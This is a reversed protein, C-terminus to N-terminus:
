DRKRNVPHEVFFPIIDKEEDLGTGNSHWRDPRSDEEQIDGKYIIPRTYVQFGQLHSYYIRFKLHGVYGEAFANGLCYQYRVSSEIGNESGNLTRGGVYKEHDWVHKPNIIHNIFDTFVGGTVETKQEEKNMPKGPSPHKFTPIGHIVVGDAMVEDFVAIREKILEAHRKENIDM